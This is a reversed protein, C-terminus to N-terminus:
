QYRETTARISLVALPCPHTAAVRLVL